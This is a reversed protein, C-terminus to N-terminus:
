IFISYHIKEVIRKHPINITPQSTMVPIEAEKYASEVTDFNGEDRNDNIIVNGRGYYVAPIVENNVWHQFKIAEPINSKMVLEFFGNVTILIVPEVHHEDVRIFVNADIDAGDIINEPSVYQYINPEKDEYGLAKLCDKAVFAIDYTKIFFDYKVSRVIGGSPIKMKYVYYVNRGMEDTVYLDTM